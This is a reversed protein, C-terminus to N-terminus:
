GNIIDEVEYRDRRFQGPRERYWRDNDRLDHGETIYDEDNIGLKKALDQAKWDIGWWPDPMGSNRLEDLLHTLTILAQARWEEDLVAAYQINTTILQKGIRAICEECYGSNEEAKRITLRDMCRRCVMKNIIM